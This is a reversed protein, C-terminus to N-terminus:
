RPRYVSLFSERAGPVKEKRFLEFGPRLTETGETAAQKGHFMWLQTRSHCHARLQLLEEASLKLAKWSMCDWSKGGACGLLYESLLAHHVYVGGLGLAHAATELFGCKKERREVMDLEIRPMLSKLLLAPFGAGSGIDLHSVAEPPYFAAAWIAERVMPGIVRWETSSALNIRSNWKEFLDLYSKLRLAVESNPPVASEMLLQQLAEASEMDM